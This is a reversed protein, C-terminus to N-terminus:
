LNSESEKIKEIYKEVDVHTGSLEFKLVLNIGYKKQIKDGALGFFPGWNMNGSCAVTKILKYNDNYALFKKTTTSVNGIGTTFTVFHSPKTVIINPTIKIIEFDGCRSVKKVFREVNGTISDYYVTIKGDM